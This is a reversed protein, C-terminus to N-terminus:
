QNGLSSPADIFLLKVFGYGLLHISHGLQYHSGRYVRPENMQWAHGPLM